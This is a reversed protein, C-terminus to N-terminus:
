RRGNLKEAFHQVQFEDNGDVHDVWGSATKNWSLIDM